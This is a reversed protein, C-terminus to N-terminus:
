KLKDFIMLTVIVLFNVSFISIMLNAKMKEIRQGSIYAPFFLDGIFVGWIMSIFIVFVPQMFLLLLWPAIGIAVKIFFYRDQMKLFNM